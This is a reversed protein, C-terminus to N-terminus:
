EKPKSIEMKMRVWLRVPIMKWLPILLAWKWNVVAVRRKHVIAEIMLPVVEGVTMEMPYAQNDQVLPTRVWGPRIDTFTIGAGTNNSIQELAWLYWQDFKKASSYASLPGMPRGAAVSTIAAIQGRVKNARFWNFAASVCRAFGTANTRVVDAELEPDLQPNPVGIGAAHVYIDMGGTAEILEGLHVAANRKSIDISRYEVLEPYLEQLERLRETHRAALGVKVGRSALAEALGHGLGSSAGVIIVKKM